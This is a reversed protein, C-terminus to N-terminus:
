MKRIIIHKKRYKGSNPCDTKYGSNPKDIETKFATYRYTDLEQNMDTLLRNAEAHLQVIDVDIQDSGWKITNEDTYGTLARFEKLGFESEKGAAQKLIAWLEKTSKALIGDEDFKFYDLIEIFSSRDNKRSEFLKVKDDYPYPSHYYREKDSVDRSLLYDFCDEKDFLLGDNNRDFYKDFEEPDKIRRGLQSAFYTIRRDNKDEILPMTTKNTFVMFSAQIPKMKTDVGKATISQMEETIIKKFASIMKSDADDFENMIIILKEELITNFHGLVDSSDANDNCYYDSMCWKLFKGLLGKGVGPVSSIVIAITPRKEPHQLRLALYDLLYEAKGISDPDPTKDFPVGVLSLCLKYLSEPCDKIVRDPKTKRTYTWFVNPKISVPAYREFLTLGWNMDTLHTALYSLKVDVIVEEKGAAYKYKIPVVVKKTKRDFLSSIDGTKIVGGELYSVRDRYGGDVQTYFRFTINMLSIIEYMTFYSKNTIISLFETYPMIITDCKWITPHEDYAVSAKYIGNSIAPDNLATKDVHRTASIYPFYRYITKRIYKHDLGCATLMKTLKFTMSMWDSFPVHQKLEEFSPNAFDKMHTKFSEKQENNARELRNKYVNKELWSKFDDSFTIDEELRDAFVHAEKIISMAKSSKKKENSSLYVIPSPRITTKNADPDYSTKPSLPLRFMKQKGSKVYVSVDFFELDIKSNDMNRVNFLEVMDDRRFSAGVFYIHVSLDKFMSDNKHNISLYKARNQKKLPALYKEAYKLGEDNGVSIVVISLKPHFELMQKILEFVMDTRPNTKIKKMDLDIYFRCYDERIVETAEENTNLQEIYEKFEDMNYKNYIKAKTATFTSILKRFKQSLEIIRDTTMIKLHGDGYAFQDMNDLRSDARWAKHNDTIKVLM